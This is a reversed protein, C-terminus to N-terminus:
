LCTMCCFTDARRADAEQSAAWSALLRLADATPSGPPPTGVVHPQGTRSSGDTLTRQFTRYEKALSVSIFGGNPEAAPRRGVSASTAARAPTDTASTEM